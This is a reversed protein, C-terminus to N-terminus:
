EERQQISFASGRHRRDYKCTFCRFLRLSALWLCRSAMSGGGLTAHDITLLCQHQPLLTDPDTQLNHLVQQLIKCHQHITLGKCGTFHLRSNRYMWKQHTINLLKTIFQKGWSTTRITTDQLLPCIFTMWEKAIRREQM